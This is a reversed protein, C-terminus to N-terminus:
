TNERTDAVMKRKFSIQNCEFVSASCFALRVALGCYAWRAKISKMNERESTILLENLQQSSTTDAEATGDSSKLCVRGHGFRSTRLFQKGFVKIPDHRRTNSAM